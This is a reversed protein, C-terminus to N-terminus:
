EVLNQENTEKEFLKVSACNIYLSSYMDLIYVKIHKPMCTCIVFSDDCDLCWIHGDDGFDGQAM